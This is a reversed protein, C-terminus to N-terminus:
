WTLHAAQGSAPADMPPRTSAADCGKLREALQRTAVTLKVVRDPNAIVAGFRFTARLGINDSDFYFDTLTAVAAQCVPFRCANLGTYKPLACTRAQRM